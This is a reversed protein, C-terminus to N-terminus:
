TRITYVCLPLFSSEFTGPRMIGLALMIQSHTNTKKHRQPPARADLHFHKTQRRARQFNVAAQSKHVREFSGAAGVRQSASCFAPPVVIIQFWIDCHHCHKPSKSESHHIHTVIKQRALVHIFGCILVHKM